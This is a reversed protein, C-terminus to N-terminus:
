CNRMKNIWCCKATIVQVSCNTDICAYVVPAQSTITLFLKRLLYDQQGFNNSFQFYIYSYLENM